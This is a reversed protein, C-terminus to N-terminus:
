LRHDPTRKKEKRRPSISLAPGSRLNTLGEFRTTWKTAKWNIDNKNILSGSARTGGPGGPLGGNESVPLVWLLCARLTTQGKGKGRGKGRGRGRPCNYRGPSIISIKRRHKLHSTPLKTICTPITLFLFHFQLSHVPFQLDGCITVVPVQFSLFLYFSDRLFFVRSESRLVYWQLNLPYIESFLCISKIGHPFSFFVSLPPWDGFIAHDSCLNLKRREETVDDSSITSETANRAPKSFCANVARSINM